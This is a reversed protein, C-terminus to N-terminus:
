NENKSKLNEFPESIDFFNLDFCFRTLCMNQKGIYNICCHSLKIHVIDPQLCRLGCKTDFIIFRHSCRFWHRNHFLDFLLIFLNLLLISRKCTLFLLSHHLVLVHHVLIMELLLLKEKSLLLLLLHHLSLKLWERISTSLSRLREIWSRLWSKTELRLRHLHRHWCIRM